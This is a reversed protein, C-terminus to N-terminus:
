IVSKLYDLDILLISRNGLSKIIGNNEFSSLKRSLTERTLGAYSALEERSIPLKLNIGDPGVVGYKDSLELLVFATRSEATGSSLNQALNESNALQRSLSSIIKLSIDSNNELISKMNSKSLVCVVVNEIAYANFNSKQIGGFISLEGFFDGHKLIRLIQEKGESNFKSLKVMGEHVIFLTDTVDGEYLLTEGKKYKRHQTLHVIKELEDDKLGKFIPVNSACLGNLCKQCVVKEM